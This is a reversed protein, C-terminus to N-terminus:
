GSAENEYDKIYRGIIASSEEESLALRQVSEYLEEYFAVERASEVARATGFSEVLGITGGEELDLLFLSGSQMGHDYARFPVVHIKIRPNEQYALLVRLQGAMVRQSHAPRALAAEDIVARYFPPDDKGFVRVHRRVRAAAKEAIDEESDWPLGKRFQSRAYDETQLLGPIVGSTFARLRVAETEKSVVERAGPEILLERAMELLDTFERHAGLKEDLMAAVADSPRQKMTEIRAIYSQPYGTMVAVERQSIGLRERHARLRRAIMADPSLVSKDVHRADAM